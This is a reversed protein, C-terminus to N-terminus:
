RPPRPHRARYIARHHLRHHADRRRLPHLPILCDAFAATGDKWFYLTEEVAPEDEFRVETSDLLGSLAAVIEAKQLLYRSRLVWETELLVMLSVFLDEGAGIERKILRRAREFQAEAQDALNLIGVIEARSMLGRRLYATLVNRLESRWPIPALWDPDQRRVAQALETNQGRVWCNHIVNNDVVIV